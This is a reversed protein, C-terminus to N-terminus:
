KGVSKGPKFQPYTKDPHCDACVPAKGFNEGPHCDTCSLAEHLDDLKLGTVAHVFSKSDWTRHCAGCDRKLGTFQRGEGHCGSCALSAHYQKLAWGSSRAHDFPGPDSKVHCKECSQDAHCASCQAHVADFDRTRAAAAERRMKEPRQDHCSICGEQRHCDACKLGFRTAHDSHYFAVVSAEQEKTTYVKKAPAEVPPHDKRGRQYGDLIQANTKGETKAIHCSSCEPTGSWQRHCELCQRHYAGKLDPLDINERKREAPHCSRCSLINLATDNYHHCLYCGGSIDTMQAHTKHSFVVPGYQGGKSDMLVVGPADAPSHIGTSEKVRPCVILCPDSKTPTTCTHCMACRNRLEAPLGHPAEKKAQARGVQASFSVLVLVAAAALVAAVSSRAFTKM